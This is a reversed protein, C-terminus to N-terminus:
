RDKFGDMCKSLKTCFSLFKCNKCHYVYELFDFDWSWTAIIYFLRYVVQLSFKLVANWM